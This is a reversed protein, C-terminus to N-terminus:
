SSKETEPSNNVSDKSYETLALSADVADIHGNFNLDALIPDLDSDVGVSLRAYGSLIASADRGDLIGDGNVDGMHDSCVPLTDTQFEHLSSPKMLEWTRHDPEYDIQDDAKMFWDYIIVGVDDWTPDVHFYHGGINAIVWAHSPNYVYCSQIGAEHLLLNMARAYGDCVSTENLFVSVDVHNKDAFSKTEDFVVMDCLADHLAKVKEVDNMDDTITESVIKKVRYKVYGNVIANDDSDYFNKEIFDLFEEAPAGDKRFVPKGNISELKNCYNFASGKINQSIDLNINSLSTCNMFSNVSLDAKGKFTVETLASCNEFAKKKLSTDGNACVNKLASCDSFAGESIVVDGKPLVLGTIGTSHFADFDINLIRVYDPFNVETLQQDRGFASFNINLIANEGNFSVRRLKNCDSFANGELNVTGPFDLAEISSGSFGPSQITIRESQINLKRVKEPDFPYPQRFLTEDPNITIVPIGLPPSSALSLVVPFGMYKKPPEGELGPAYILYATAGNDNLEFRYCWNTKEDFVTVPSTSREIENLSDIVKDKPYDFLPKEPLADSCIFLLKESFDVEELSTLENMCQTPLIRVKEPINLKKLSSCSGFAGNSIWEITDPLELTEAEHCSHLIYSGVSTVPQGAVTDPIVINKRDACEILQMGQSENINNGFYYYDDGAETYVRFAGIPPLFLPDSVKVSDPIYYTCFEIMYDSFLNKGLSVVPLGEIESPIVVTYENERSNYKTLKICKGEYVGEIGDLVNYDWCEPVTKDYPFVFDSDAAYYSSDYDAQSPLPASAALLLAATLMAANRHYRKM